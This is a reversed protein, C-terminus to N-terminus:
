LLLALQSERSMEGSQYYIAQKKGSSLATIGCTTQGDTQRERNYTVNM